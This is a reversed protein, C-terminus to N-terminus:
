ISAEAIVSMWEARVGLVGSSRMSLGLGDLLHSRAVCIDCHTELNDPGIVYYVDITRRAFGARKRQASGFTGEPFPNGDASNNASVCAPLPRGADAARAQVPTGRPQHAIRSCSECHSSELQARANVCSM